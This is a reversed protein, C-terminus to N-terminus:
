EAASGDLKGGPLGLAARANEYQGIDIEGAALRRGLIADADDGAQPGDRSGAASAILWGFGDMTDMGMM